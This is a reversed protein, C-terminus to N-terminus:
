SDFRHPDFKDVPLGTKGTVAFQAAIEGIVSAFKFGHGSFGGLLTLGPLDRRPGVLFHRDPTLSYM